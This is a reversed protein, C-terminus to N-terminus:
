KIEVKDGEILTRNLLVVDGNKLGSTVEVFRGIVQGLNVTQAKATGNDNVFVISSEQSQFISDLPIFPIVANTDSMGVPLSVSVYQGQTSQSTSESSSTDYGKMLESLSADGLQPLTYVIAFLRGDTPETAVHDPLVDLSQAGVTITSPELLSVSGAVDKSVLVIVSISGANSAITAIQDGSSVQQGAKVYIREVRGAFPSAPYMLSEAISAVQVNLRAIELNLDLTKDQLDLQKLAAERATDSLHAPPNDGNEQYDASRLASEAASLGNLLGVKQQKLGLITQDNATSSSLGEYYDILNNLLDLSSNSQDIVEHTRDRSDRTIERLRDSNEDTKNASDRNKAIIEKQLDYTDKQFNYNTQSLQRQVGPLVAGQYNSSLSVIVQGKKIDSGATVNIKQVIGASQARIVVVGSKDIKGNVTIRPVSGITYGQVQKAPQQSNTEQVPPKRLQNGAYILAFMVTLVAIFSILAHHKVFRKVPKSYRSYGSIITKRFSSLKNM